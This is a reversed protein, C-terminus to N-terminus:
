YDQEHLNGIWTAYDATGRPYVQSEHNGPSRRSRWKRAEREYTKAVELKQYSAGDATFSYYTAVGAAKEEWIDAAAAALDYTATWSTNVSGYITLPWQGTVDPLPYNSIATVLLSDTYTATGPEAIMRRLRSLDDAATGGSYHSM